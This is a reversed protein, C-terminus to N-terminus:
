WVYVWRCSRGSQRWMPVVRDLFSAAPEATQRTM